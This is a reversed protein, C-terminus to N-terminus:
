LGFNEFGTVSLNLKNLGPGLGTSTGTKVLFTFKHVRGCYEILLINNFVYNAFLLRSNADPSHPNGSGTDRIGPDRLWKGPIGSRVPDRLKQGPILM